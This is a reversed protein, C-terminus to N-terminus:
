PRGRRSAARVGQPKRRHRSSSPTSGRDLDASPTEPRVEVGQTRAARLMPETYLDEEIRPGGTGYDLQEPRYGEMLLLGGPKLSRKMAEFLRARIGTWDQSM